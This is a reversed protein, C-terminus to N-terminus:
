GRARAPAAKAAAKRAVAKKAVAKKAITNTATTKKAPPKKATADRRAAAAPGTNAVFQQGTKSAARKKKDTSRREAPTLQLKLEAVAFEEHVRAAIWALARILIFSDAKVWLSPAIHEVHVAVGGGEALAHAAIDDGVLLSEEKEGGLGLGARGLCGDQALEDSLRHNVGISFDRGDAADIILEFNARLRFSENVGVELIGHQM